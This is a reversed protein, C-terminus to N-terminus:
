LLSTYDAQTTICPIKTLTLTWIDDKLPVHFYQVLGGDNVTWM